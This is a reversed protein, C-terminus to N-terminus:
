LADPLAQVTEMGSAKATGRTKLGQAMVVRDISCLKQNPTHWISWRLM